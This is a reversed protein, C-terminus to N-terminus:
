RKYYKRSQKRRDLQARVRNLAKNVANGVYSPGYAAELYTLKNHIRIYPNIGSLRKSTEVKKRALSSVQGASRGGVSVGAWRWSQKALGRREILKQAKVKERWNPDNHSIVVYEPKAAGAKFREILSEGNRHVVTRNKKSPKSAAGLSIVTNGALWGVADKADKSTDQEIRKLTDKFYNHTSIDM